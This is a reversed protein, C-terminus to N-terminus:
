PPPDACPLTFRFTAGNTRDEAWIKGGHAEVITRSISLGVGMGGNKTSHFPSFLADRVEIAVGAGTDSVSIEAMDGPAPASAIAVEKNPVDQMAEIANRILNILVQQVQIRDAAVWLCRPDLEVKHVVGLFHQDVFGLECAEAVVTDLKEPKVTANGRAVMERLRRLIEGARLAANEAESLASRAQDHLDSPGSLLHRSGGIYSSIATLPQNLEHALTSAMTGMASLRSVHILEAQLRRMEAADHRLRENASGLERMRQRVRKELADMAHRLRKGTSESLRVHEEAQLQRAHGRLAARAANVLFAPVLPRELLLLNGLKAQLDPLDYAQARDVILIFPLSAWAPEHAILAAIASLDLSPLMEAGIIIAALGSQELAQPLEDAKLMLRSISHQDFSRAIDEAEGASALIAITGSPLTSIAEGL